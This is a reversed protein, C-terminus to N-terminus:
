GNLWQEEIIAKVGYLEYPKWNENTFRDLVTTNSAMGRMKMYQQFHTCLKARSICDYFVGNEESQALTYLYGVDGEEDDEGKYNLLAKAVEPLKLYEKEINLTGEIEWGSFGVVYLRRRITTESMGKSALLECISVKEEVTLDDKGLIGGPIFIKKINKKAM